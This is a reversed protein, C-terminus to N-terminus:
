QRLYGLVRLVMSMATPTMVLVRSQSRTDEQQLLLSVRRLCAKMCRQTMTVHDQLLELRTLQNLTHHHTCYLHTLPVHRLLALSLALSMWIIRCNTLVLNPSPSLSTRHRTPPGSTPFSPNDPPSSNTDGPIELYHSAM